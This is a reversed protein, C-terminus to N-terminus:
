KGVIAEYEEDTLRPTNLLPQLIALLRQKDIFKVRGDAFLVNGGVEHGFLREFAIPESAAANAKLGEGTFIYDLQLNARADVDSTFPPNAHESNCSPCIFARTDLQQDRLLTALDPPFASTNQMSYARIAVGIQQLNKTCWSRLTKESTRGTPRTLANALLVLLVTVVVILGSARWLPHGM